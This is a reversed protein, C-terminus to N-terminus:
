SPHSRGYREALHRVVLSRYRAFEEEIQGAQDAGEDRLSAAGRRDFGSCVRHLRMAGVNAASSRLAHLGDRFAPIDDAAVAARLDALVQEADAIFDGIVEAVFASGQGLAHLEELARFDVVPQAESQFRPHKTIDAVRGMDAGAPEEAVAAALSEITAILRATDVPKTLYADMGADECRKRAEPTADATLAIFPLHRADLHAMRYLKVADLGSTGPMNVDMLVADFTEADLLDLAEDATGVLVPIHGGKELIKATVKRNVPNDEAILVRLVRRPLAPRAPAEARRVPDFAAVARLANDVSEVTLPVPVTAVYARAFTEGASPRLLVFQCARDSKRVADVIDRAEIGPARADVLLVRYGMGAAAAGTAEEIATSATPALATEMGTREILPLLENALAGDATLVLVRGEFSSPAVDVRTSIPAKIWFTSGEGPLSEVGIDGGLLGALQKAIALGLGTGGYRRNTADDAQTFSDFIRQRDEPRIGIGSDIVRFLLVAKDGQTDVADVSLVVHGRETFKVANSLFNMLVQRLHRIDGRLAHPTHATFQVRLDLGKGAAQPRMISLLDAVEAHLDFDSVEVAYKRAEIKSLDLIDDILSLLARGSSGITHAMDRQEADLKTGRLLDSMGIIANLPTRLEHSMNALFWSKAQNADEALAKAETLKKILTSVYAPLVVLALLLGISLPHGISWYENTLTVTLFGVISFLAAPRLYAVGYRFGYGLTIWLYIPYIGAGAEGGFYMLVSLTTQDGVMAFIRRAVSKGPWAVILGVILVAIALYACAFLFGARYDVGARAGGDDLIYFYLALLSVIVVRIIAQEHESDPRNALRGRLWALRGRKGIQATEVTTM